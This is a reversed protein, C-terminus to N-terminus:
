GGPQQLAMCRQYREYTRSAFWATTLERTIKPSDLAIGPLRERPLPAGHRAEALAFVRAFLPSDNFHLSAGKELERRVAADDMGLGLSRVAAETQGPRELPAGPLLLDGDLALTRGSAVAVAHQFAANRSAYWGANYDAFRHIKRTYPTAYGLLHAIGFYLGGRRSFVERRADRGPYPYRDMRGAAFAISVQMAGGTQVPNHGGLLRAGLPVRSIVEEYLESLEGESRVADLRQGYSRGDLSAINLAASLALRPIRRARARRELERRAIDGLGAVPPDPDYGSEQEIVALTACINETTGPIGQAHFATQIDAAWGARDDLRQPLRAVIRQRLELVPDDGPVPRPARTSCAALLLLAAAALPWRPFKSVSRYTM